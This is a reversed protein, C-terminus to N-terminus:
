NFAGQKAKAISDRYARHSRPCNQVLDMLFLELDSFFRNLTKFDNISNHLSERESHDIRSWNLLITDQRNRLKSWNEILKVMYAKGVQIEEIYDVSIKEFHSIAHVLAAELLVPDGKQSAEIAEIERASYYYGDYLVLGWREQSRNFEELPLPLAFEYAEALKKAIGPNTAGEVIIKINRGYGIINGVNIFDTGDVFKLIASDLEIRSICSLPESVLFSLAGMLVCYGIKNM